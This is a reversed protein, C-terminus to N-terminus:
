KRLFCFACFVSQVISCCQGPRQQHPAVVTKHIGCTLEYTKLLHHGSERKLVLNAFFSYLFHSLLLIVVRDKKYLRFWLTPTTTNTYPVVLECILIVTAQSDATTVSRSSSRTTRDATGPSIVRMGCLELDPMSWCFYRITHTDHTTPESQVAVRFM